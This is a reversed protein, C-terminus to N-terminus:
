NVEKCKRRGRGLVRVGVGGAIGAMKMANDTALATSSRREITQEDFLDFTPFAADGGHSSSILWAVQALLMELRRPWLPKITARIAWEDLERTTMTADLQRATM